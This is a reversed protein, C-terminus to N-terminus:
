PFQDRSSSIRIRKESLAKRFIEIKKNKFDLFEDIKLQRLYAGQPLLSRAM